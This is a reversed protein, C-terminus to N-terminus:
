RLEESARSILGALWTAPVSWDHTHGFSVLRVEGSRVRLSCRCVSGEWIDVCLANQRDPDSALEAYWDGIRHAEV